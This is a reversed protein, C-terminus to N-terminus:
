APARGEHHKDITTNPLTHVPLTEYKLHCLIAERIVLLRLVRQKIGEPRRPLPHKSEFDDLLLAIHHLQKDRYDSYNFLQTGDQIEPPITIKTKM